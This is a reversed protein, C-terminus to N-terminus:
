RSDKPWGRRKARMERRTFRLFGMTTTLDPRLWAPARAALLWVPAMALPSTATEARNRWVPIIRVSVSSSSNSTAVRMALWGSGAPRRTPIRVLAPPGPMRAASARDASPSSRGRNEGAICSLNRAPRAASAEAPLGTSMIAEALGSWYLAQRRSSSAESSISETITM